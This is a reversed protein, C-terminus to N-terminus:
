ASVMSKILFCLLSSIILKVVPGPPLNTGLSSSGFIKAGPVVKVCGSLLTSCIVASLGSIQENSKFVMFEPGSTTMFVGTFQRLIALTIRSAPTM